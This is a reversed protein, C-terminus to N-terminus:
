QSVNMCLRVVFQRNSQHNGGHLGSIDLVFAACAIRYNRPLLLGDTKYTMLPPIGGDVECENLSFM